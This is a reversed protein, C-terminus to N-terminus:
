AKQIIAQDFGFAPQIHGFGIKGPGDTGCLCAARQRGIQGGQFVGLHDVRQFGAQDVM